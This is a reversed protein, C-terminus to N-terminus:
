QSPQLVGGLGQERQIVMPGRRDNDILDRVAETDGPPPPPLPGPPVTSPTRTGRTGAGGDREGRDGKLGAESLPHGACVLRLPATGRGSELAFRVADADREARVGVVIGGDAAAHPM